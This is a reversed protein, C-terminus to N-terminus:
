YLFVSARGFRKRAAPAMLEGGGFLIRRDSIMEPALDCFPHFFM